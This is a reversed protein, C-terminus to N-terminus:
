AGAALQDRGPVPRGGFDACLDADNGPGAPDAGADHSHGGACLGQLDGALDSQSRWPQRHLAVMALILVLKVWESPQFQIPGIAIWRRAGLGQPWRGERRGALCRFHRLVVAFLRATPSLRDQGPHVHRCHGGVIFFIQKTHFGVYKTHLTASYIEAVSLVCLILIILLLGWDFDRFSM